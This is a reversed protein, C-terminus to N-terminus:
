KNTEIHSEDWMHLFLWFGPTSSIAILAILIKNFSVSSPLEPVNIQHLLDELPEGKELLIFSTFPFLCRDYQDLEAEIQEGYVM